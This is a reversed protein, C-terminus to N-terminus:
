DLPIPTSKLFTVEVDEAIVYTGDQQQALNRKLSLRNQEKSILAYQLKKSGALPTLTVATVDDGYLDRLGAIADSVSLELGGVWKDLYRITLAKVRDRQESSRFVTDSVYLDLAFSQASSITEETYDAVLVTTTALQNKPYFFVKTKELAQSQIMPIDHTIWDVLVTVFEDKYEKYVADDVFYYQGDITMIDFEREGTKSEKFVPKGERMVVDGARHAYQLKGDTGYVPDGARAIYNYQVAGGVINFPPSGFIDTEAVMPVDIEYHQYTETDPLTRGRMWLCDLPLGFEMVVTERTIAACPSPMQFLGIMEDLPSHRYLGTISTTCHFIDFTNTLPTEIPTVSHSDIKGNIFSILGEASIDYDTKIDFQFIREGDDTKGVLTGLWYARRYSNQLTVGLQCFVENDPLNKYFNGSKTQLQFIYGEETKQLKYSDTNVVLQLTPNQAVFNLRKSEPQDLHYAKVQLELSSTDLVYYFPTYLYQNNNVNRLKGIPDMVKLANVDAVPMLKLMGNDVRWLNKSLFTTRKNHTRVWEHNLSRPDSTIFTSIGVTASTILRSNTPKPLSRTALFIRNTVVDINPVLEFGRNEAAAKININTIPIDQPGVSNYIVRDKLQEFTLADKGSNMISKSSIVFSVGQAAATYEDTDRIPDLPSMDMIFETVDYDGLNVVEGGKTSYIDVRIEGTVQATNQYILPLSVQLSNNIVKLQLTPTKPNYVSPSHTTVMERWVGDADNRYWARTMFYQDPFDYNAVFYRGAQVNDLVQRTSVQPLQLSFGIWSGQGGPMVMREPKLMNTVLSEIPSGYTTDYSVEMQQTDFFKINIPYQLKYTVYKNVTISTDRPITMMIYNAGIPRVARQIFGAEQFFVTFEDMSPSAFRNIYDRYSMHNYLEDPRQALAPYVRRLAAVHQDISSSAIVAATEFLSLAPSSADVYQIENNSSNELADIATQLIKAPNSGAELIADKLIARDVVYTPDAM